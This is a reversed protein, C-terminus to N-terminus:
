VRLLRNYVSVHTWRLQRSSAPRALHLSSAQLQELVIRLHCCSMNYVRLGKYDRYLGRIIGIIGTTEM